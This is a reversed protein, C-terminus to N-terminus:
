IFANLYETVSSWLLGTDCCRLFQSQMLLQRACHLPCFAVWPKGLRALLNAIVLGLCRSVHVILKPLQGSLVAM